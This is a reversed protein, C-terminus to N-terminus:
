RAATSGSAPERPASARARGAPPPGLPSTRAFIAPRTRRERLDRGHHEALQLEVGLGVEAARDVLADDGHGGVEVVVLARRRLLRRLDGPQVHQADNVLRSRRRHGIPQGRLELALGQDEVQAAAGEVHRDELDLRAHELHLGRATVRHQPALVEVRRHHPPEQLLKAGAASVAARSVREM